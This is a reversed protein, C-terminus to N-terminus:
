ENDGRLAAVVENPTMTEFDVRTGDVLHVFAGREPWIRLVATVHDPNIWGDAVPRLNHPTAHQTM